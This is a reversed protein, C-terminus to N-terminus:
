GADDLLDGLADLGRAVEAGLDAEAEILCRLAAAALSRGEGFVAGIGAERLELRCTYPPLGGEAPERVDVVVRGLEALAELVDDRTFGHPWRGRLAPDGLLADLEAADPSPFSEPHM